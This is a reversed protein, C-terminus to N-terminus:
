GLDRMRRCDEKDGNDNRKEAEKEKTGEGREEKVKRRGRETKAM